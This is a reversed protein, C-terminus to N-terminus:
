TASCHILMSPATDAPEPQIGEQLFIHALTGVHLPVRRGPLSLHWQDLFLGLHTQVLGHQWFSCVWSQRDSTPPLTYQETKASLSSSVGQGILDAIDMWVGSIPPNGVRHCPM